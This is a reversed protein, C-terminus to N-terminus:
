VCCDQCNQKQHVVMTFFKFIGRYKITYYLMWLRVACCGSWVTESTGNRLQEYAGMRSRWWAAVELRTVFCQSAQQCVAFSGLRHLLTGYLRSFADKPYSRAWKGRWCAPLTSGYETVVNWTQFATKGRRGISFMRVSALCQLASFTLTYSTAIIEHQKWQREM